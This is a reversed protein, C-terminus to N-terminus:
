FLEGVTTITYGRKALEPILIKTAEVTNPRTNHLVVINGPVLSNIIRNVIQTTSSNWSWDRPDVNWFIESYGLDFLINRVRSDCAGGPCRFLPKTSYGTADYIAEENQLVQHRIEGASVNMLNPHTWSHNGLEHGQTIIKQLIEPKNRTVRGQVFFTVHINNEKLLNLLNETNQNYGELDYTLAIKPQTTTGKRIRQNTLIFIKKAQKQVLAQQKKILLEFFNKNHGLAPNIVAVIFFLLIFFSFYYRKSYTFM